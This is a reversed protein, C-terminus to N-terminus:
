SRHQSHNRIAVKLGLKLPHLLPASMTQSSLVNIEYETISFFVFLEHTRLNLGVLLEVNVMIAIIEVREVARTGTM